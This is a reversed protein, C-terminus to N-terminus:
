MEDASRIINTLTAVATERVLDELENLRTSCKQIKLPTSSAAQLSWNCSRQNLFRRTRIWKSFKLSSGGATPIPRERNRQLLKRTPGVLSSRTETCQGLPNVRQQTSLFRHICTYCLWIMHRGHTTLSRGQLSWVDCWGSWHTRVLVIKKRSGLQILQEKLMRSSSLSSFRHTWRTLVAHLYFCLWDVSRYDLNLTMKFLKVVLEAM